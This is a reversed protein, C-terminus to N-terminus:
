AATRAAKEPAFHRKLRLAPMEIYKRSQLAVGICLPVGIAARVLVAGFGAAAATHGSARIWVLDVLDLLPMHALYLCYSLDGLMTLPRVKLWATWTSGSLVVAALVFGAFATQPVTFQLASGLTTARHFIGRSLGAAGLAVAVAVAAACLRLARARTLWPSRVAVAALAGWALGDFRFWSYTYVDAVAFKSLARVAPELVIIAGSVIAVLRRSLLKVVWPWLLYFHEEVGLSWLARGGAVVVINFIPALNASMLLCIVVFPGSNRYCLWLIAIIILYIPLIRLARRAYFNRFYRPGTKTDLLIGTILFGSLIFFLDVGLWGPITVRRILEPIGTWRRGLMAYSFLHTLLVMGIAIGRLGDLEPLRGGAATVPIGSEPAVQDLTSRM